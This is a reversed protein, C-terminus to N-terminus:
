GYDHYEVIIGNDDFILVTCLQQELKDGKNGFGPIDVAATGTWVQERYVVNGIATVRIADGLKRDPLYEEAFTRVMAVLEERKTFAHGQNHHFFKLDPALLREYADYDLDNYAKILAETAALLDTGTAQPTM